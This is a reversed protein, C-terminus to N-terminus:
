PISQKRHGKGKEWRERELSRAENFAERIAANSYAPIVDKVHVRVPMSTVVSTWVYPRLARPFDQRGGHAFGPGGWGCFIASVSTESNTWDARLSALGWDLAVESRFAQGPELIVPRGLGVGGWNPMSNMLDDWTHPAQLKRSLIILLNGDLHVDDPALAIKRDTSNSFVVTLFLPHFTTKVWLESPELLLTPRQRAPQMRCGALAGVGCAIATLLILSSSTHRLM